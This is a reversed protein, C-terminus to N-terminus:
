NRFSRMGRANVSADGRNERTTSPAPQGNGIRAGRAMVSLWWTKITGCDTAVIATDTAMYVSRPPDIENRERTGEEEEMGQEMAM